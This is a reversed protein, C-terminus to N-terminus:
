MCIWGLRAGEVYLIFQDAGRPLTFAGPLQMWCGTSATVSGLREFEHDGNTIILMTLDVTLAGSSLQVWIQGTLSSGPILSDPSIEWSPGTYVLQRNTTAVSSDPFLTLAAPGFPAWGTPIGNAFGPNSILNGPGTEDDTSDMCQVSLKAFILM